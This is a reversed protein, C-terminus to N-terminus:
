MLWRQKTSPDDDDFHSEGNGKKPDPVLKLKSRSHHTPNLARRAAWHLWYREAWGIVLVAIAVLGVYVYWSRTGAGLGLVAAVGAAAALVLVGPAWEGKRTTLFRNM